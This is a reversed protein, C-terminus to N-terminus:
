SASHLALWADATQPTLAAAPKLSEALDRESEMIAIRLELNSVTLEQTFYHPDSKLTM